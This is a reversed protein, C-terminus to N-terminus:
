VAPRRLFLDYVGIKEGAATCERRCVHKRLYAACGRRRWATRNPRAALVLVWERPHGRGHARTGDMRRCAPHARRRGRRRRIPQAFAGEEEHLRRACDTKGRQCWRRHVGPTPWRNQRSGGTPRCYEPTPRGIKLLYHGSLIDWLYRAAIPRSLGLGALRLVVVCASGRRRFRRRNRKGRGSLRSFAVKAPFIGTERRAAFHRSEKIAPM